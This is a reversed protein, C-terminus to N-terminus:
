AVDDFRSATMYTPKGFKMMAVVADNGAVTFGNSHVVAPWQIASRIGTDGICQAAIAVAVSQESISGHTYMTIIDINGDVAQRQTACGRM